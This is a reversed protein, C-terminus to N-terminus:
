QGFKVLPLRIPRSDDDLDTFPTRTFLEDNAPILDHRHWQGADQEDDAAAHSHHSFRAERDRRELVKPSSVSGLAIDIDGDEDIDRSHVQFISKRLEDM